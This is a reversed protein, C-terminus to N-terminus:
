SVSIVTRIRLCILKIVLWGNKSSIEAYKASFCCIGIKYDKTQGSRPEFGCYVPVESLSFVFVMVCSISYIFIHHNLAFEFTQITKHQTQERNTSWMYKFFTKCHHSIQRIIKFQLSTICFNTPIYLLHLLLQLLTAGTVFKHRPLAVVRDWEDCHLLIFTETSVYFSM